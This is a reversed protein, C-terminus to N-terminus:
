WCAKKWQQRVEFEEGAMVQKRASRALVKLESIPFKREKLIKVMEQGIMGAGVVIV